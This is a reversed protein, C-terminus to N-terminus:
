GGGAGGVLDMEIGALAAPDAGSDAGPLAASVTAPPDLQALQALLARAEANAPDLELVRGLTARAWEYRRAALYTGAEGLLNTTRQVRRVAAADDARVAHTRPPTLQAEPRLRPRVAEEYWGWAGFAGWLVAGAVCLGAVAEALDPRALGPMAGWGGRWGIRARLQM